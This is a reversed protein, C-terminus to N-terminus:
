RRLICSSSMTETGWGLCAAIEAKKVQRCGRARDYTHRGQQWGPCSDDARHRLQRVNEIVMSIGHTYGESLHGGSPNNPRRGDIDIMGSAVYDGAEGPQAFGYAELQILTTFTFADYSSTLDIDDQTVGSMGFLRQRGYNGAVYHIVDRSYNWLPNDAMTRATGGMIYVPPQRLDYAQERPVIVIAACVDTELCMDLIRFPKSVWRSALYDDMTIPTHMVAKPNLSAHKRHAIAIHGLKKPDMGTDKLYRMCTMGFRQGPSLFGYLQNFNDYTSIPTVPTPGSLAQGGPRRGSRGNMSRFIVMNKCYGGALLGVAHAILAETSSGGGSIDVAYNLRMGLSSGISTGATSDGINYSTIGDIDQPRIGADECARKVAEVGMSHTTRNSPRMHKTEGVGAICFKDTLPGM